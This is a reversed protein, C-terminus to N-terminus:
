DDQVILQDLSRYHVLCKECSGDTEVWDPNHKRIMEIVSAEIQKVLDDTSDDCLKCHEM